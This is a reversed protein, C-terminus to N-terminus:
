INLLKLLDGSEKKYRNERDSRGKILKTLPVNQTLYGTLLIEEEKLERRKKLESQLTYAIKTFRIANLTCDEMIHYLGTINSNILSLEKSVIGLREKLVEKNFDVEQILTLSDM